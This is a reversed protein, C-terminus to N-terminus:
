FICAVVNAIQNNIQRKQLKGLQSLSSCSNFSFVATLIFVLLELGFLDLRTPKIYLYCEAVLKTNYMGRWRFLLPEHYLLAAWHVM